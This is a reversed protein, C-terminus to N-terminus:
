GLGDPSMGLLFTFPKGPCKFLILSLLIMRILDSGPLAELHGDCVRLSPEEQAGQVTYTDFGNM